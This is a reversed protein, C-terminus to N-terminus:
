GMSRKIFENMSAQVYDLTKGLYYTIMDSTGVISEHTCKIDRIEAKLRMLYKYHEMDVDSKRTNHKGYSDKM